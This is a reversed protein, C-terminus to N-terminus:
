VSMKQMIMPVELDDVENNLINLFLTHMQKAFEKKKISRLYKPVSNWM